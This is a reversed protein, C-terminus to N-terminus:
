KQVEVSVMLLTPFPEVDGCPNDSLLYLVGIVISTVAISMLLIMIFLVWDKLIIMKM